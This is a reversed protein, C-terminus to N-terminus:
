YVLLVLPLVLSLFSLSLSFLMLLVFLGFSWSFCSLAFLYLVTPQYRIRGQLFFSTLAMIIVQCGGDVDFCCCDYQVVVLVVIFTVRFLNVVAIWMKQEVKNITEKMESRRVHQSNM